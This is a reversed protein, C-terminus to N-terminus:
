PTSMDVTLDNPAGCREAGAGGGARGVRRAQLAEPALGLRQGGEAMGVDRRIVVDPFDVANLEDGELVDVAFRELLADRSPETDGERGLPLADPLHIRFIAEAGARDAGNSSGNSM